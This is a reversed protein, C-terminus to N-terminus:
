QQRTHTGIFEELIYIYQNTKKLTSQECFIRIVNENGSFRLCAWYDNKFYMKCGCEYEVREIPLDPLKKDVFILQNLQAKQEATIPYAYEIPSCPYHVKAKLTKIIEGFSQKLACVADLVIMGGLIGDKSHLHRTLAIGNSEAGMFANTQTMVEAIAAFGTQADYVPVNYKKALKPILSTMANNKVIAGSYGKQGVLYHILVAVVYNCDYGTGDCDVITTRDADGDVAFGLSYKKKTMETMQDTLNQLYPAPLIGRFLPDREANLIKYHKLGLKKCIYNLCRSGNGNMANLLLKPQASAISKKDLLSILDDCYPKIDKSLTIKGQSLATDFDLTKVKNAKIKNAYGAIIDAVKRSAEVGGRLFIKIGNYYFPNHSATMMISLGYTKASHSVVPSPMPEDFFHVNYKLATLVEAVQRAYEKSNFRNDYGIAITKITKDSKAFKGIAYAIRKVVDHNFTKGIIGRYGSTGFKIPIHKTQPSNLTSALEVNDFINKGLIHNYIIFSPVDNASIDDKYPTFCVEHATHYIYGKGVLDIILREKHTKVINYLNKEKFVKKALSDTMITLSCSKIERPTLTARKSAIYIVKNTPLLKKALKLTDPKVPECLVLTDDPALTTTADFDHCSLGLGKLADIGDYSNSYINFINTTMINM